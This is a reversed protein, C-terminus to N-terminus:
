KYSKSGLVFSILKITGCFHTNRVKETIQEYTEQYVDMNGKETLIKNALETVKEVDKNVNLIGAKKRKLREVSSLNHINGLILMECCILVGAYYFCKGGLRRLTKNVTENPKMYTLLQKYIEIEDFHEQDSDSEDALGHLNNTNKTTDKNKIQQWNINDLWNDRIEKENNWIFHGQKDFHGEEMEERMNFATLPVGDDQGSIGEEEGLAIM